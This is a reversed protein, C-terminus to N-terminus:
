FAKRMYMYTHYDMEKYQLISTLLTIAKYSKYM